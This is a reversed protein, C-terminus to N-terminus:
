SSPLSRINWNSFEATVTENGLRGAMVGAQGGKWLADTVLDVVRGNVYFRLVPGDALVRLTRQDVGAPMVDHMAQTWNRDWVLEGKLMHFIAYTGNPSAVFAYYNDRNQYRTILGVYGYKDYGTSENVSSPVGVMTVDVQAVGDTFSKGSTGWIPAKDQGAKLVYKGSDYNVSNEGNQATFWGSAPDSFDDTQIIRDAPVEPQGIVFSEAAVWNTNLYLDLDYIASEGPASVPFAFSGEQKGKWVQDMKQDLQVGQRSLKWGWHTNPTIQFNDFVAYVKQAGDPFSYVPTLPYHVNAGEASVKDTLILNAFLAEGAKPEIRFEGAQELENNVHIELRYVGPAFGGNVSAYFWMTGASSPNGNFVENLTHHQTLLVRGGQYWIGAIDEDPGLDKFDFFGYVKGVGVNFRTSANQPNGDSEGTAFILSNIRNTIRIGPQLVQDPAVPAASVTQIGIASVLLAGILVFARAIALKHAAM